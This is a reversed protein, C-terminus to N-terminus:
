IQEQNAVSFHLRNVEKNGRAKLVICLQEEKVHKMGTRKRKRVTLPRFVRFNRKGHVYMFLPKEKVGRPAHGKHVGM